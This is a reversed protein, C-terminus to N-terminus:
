ELDGVSSHKGEKSKPSVPKMGGRVEGSWDQTTSEHHHGRAENRREKICDLVDFTISRATVVRYGDAVGKVMSTEPDKVFESKSAGRGNPQRAVLPFVSVPTSDDGELRHAGIKGRGLEWALDGFQSNGLFKSRRERRGLRDVELSDVVM